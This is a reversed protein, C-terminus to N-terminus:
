TVCRRSRCRRRPRSTLCLTTTWNRWRVSMRFVMNAGIDIKAMYAQILPGHITSTARHLCKPSALCWEQRAAGELRVMDLLLRDVAAERYEDIEELEHEIEFRVAERLDPLIEKGFEEDEPHSQLMGFTLHEENSLGKPAGNGWPVYVQEEGDLMEKYSYQEELAEIFLKPLTVGTEDYYKDAMPVRRDSGLAESRMTLSEAVVRGYNEGLRVPYEEAWKTKWKSIGDIEARGRLRVLDSPVVAGNGLQHALPLNSLIATVKDYPAGYCWM